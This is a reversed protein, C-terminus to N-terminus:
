VKVAVALSGFSGNLPVLPDAEAGEILKLESVFKPNNRIPDWKPHILNFFHLGAFINASRDIMQIARNFNGLVLNIEIEKDKINSM